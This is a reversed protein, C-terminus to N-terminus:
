AIIISLLSPGVRDPARQLASSSFLQLSYQVLEAARGTGAAEGKAGSEIRMQAFLTLRFLVLLANFLLVWCLM